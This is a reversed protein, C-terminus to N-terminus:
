PTLHPLHSFQLLFFLLLISFPPFCFSSPVDPLLLLSVSPLLSMLSFPSPLALFPSPLLPSLFLSAHRWAQGRCCCRPHGSVHRRRARAARIARKCPCAHLRHRRGAVLQLWSRCPPMFSSWESTSSAHQARPTSCRRSRRSPHPSWSWAHHTGLPLLIISTITM